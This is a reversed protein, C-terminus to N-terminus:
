ILRETDILFRHSGRALPLERGACAQALGDGHQDRDFDSERQSLAPPARLAPPDFFSPGLIEGRAKSVISGGERQASRRPLGNSSRFLTTHPPLPPGTTRPRTWM